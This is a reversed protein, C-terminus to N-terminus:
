DKILKHGSRNYLILTATMSISGNSGHPIANEWRNFPAILTERANVVCTRISFDHKILWRWPKMFYLVIACVVRNRLSSPCAAIAGVVFISAVTVLGRHFWLVGVVHVVLTPGFYAYLQMEPGAMSRHFGIDTELGRLYRLMPPFLRLVHWIAFVNFLRSLIHSGNLSSIIRLTCLFGTGEFASLMWTLYRV